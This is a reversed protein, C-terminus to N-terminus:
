YELMWPVISLVLERRSLHSISSNRYQLRVNILEIRRVVM